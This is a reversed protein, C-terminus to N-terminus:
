QSNSVPKPPTGGTRRDYTSQVLGNQFSRTSRLTFDSQPAPQAFLPIGEGLVLPITSLVMTDILGERVLLSNIQGGGLLWINKGTGQKLNKVATIIDGSMFKVFQTDPRGPTRTCVYNTFGAMSALGDLREALRYTSHGMITTDIGSIFEAYGYDSGGPDRSYADLWDVGGDQRAILGDITVASYLIVTKM